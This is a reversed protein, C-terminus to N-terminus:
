QGAYDGSLQSWILTNDSNFHVTYYQSTEGTYTFVGWWSKDNISAAYDKSKPAANEKKCSSFIGAVLLIAVFMSSYKKM